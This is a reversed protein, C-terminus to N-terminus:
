ANGGDRIAEALKMDSEDITERNKDLLTYLGKILEPIQKEVFCILTGETEPNTGIKSEVLADKTEGEFTAIAANLEAIFSEAQSKFNSEAQVLSNYADVMKGNDVMMAM